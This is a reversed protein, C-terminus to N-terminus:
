DVRSYKTGFTGPLDKLMSPTRSSQSIIKILNKTTKMMLNQKLHVAFKLSNILKQEEPKFDDSFRITQKNHVSESNKSHQDNLEEYFLGFTLIIVM